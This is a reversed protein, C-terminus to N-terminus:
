IELFHNSQKQCNLWVHEYNDLLKCIELGIVFSHGAGVELGILQGRIKLVKLFLILRM